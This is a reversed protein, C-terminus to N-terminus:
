LALKEEFSWSAQGGLHSARGALWGALWGALQRGIAFL